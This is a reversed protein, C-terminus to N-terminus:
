ARSFTFRIDRLVWLSILVQLGELEEGQERPMIESLSKGEWIQMGYEFYDILLNTDWAVQLPGRGSRGLFLSPGEDYRFHPGEPPSDERHLQSGSAQMRNIIDNALWVGQGEVSAVRRDRSDTTM